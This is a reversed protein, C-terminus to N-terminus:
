VPEDGRFLLCAKDNKLKRLLALLGDGSPIRCRVIAYCTEPSQYFRPSYLLELYFLSATLYSSVTRLYSSSYSGGEYEVELDAEGYRSADKFDKTALDRRPIKHGLQHISKRARFADRLQTGNPFAHFAFISSLLPTPSVQHDKCSQILDTIHGEWMEPLPTKDAYAIAINFPEPSSRAFHTLAKHYIYPSQYAERADTQALGHAM